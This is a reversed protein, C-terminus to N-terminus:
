KSIRKKAEKSDTDLLSDKHPPAPPANKEDHRRLFKRMKRVLFKERKKPPNPEFPNKALPSATFLHLWRGDTYYQKGLKNAIYQLAQKTYFSIHQGTEQSFYWWDTTVDDPVLETTFFFNDSYALINKIEEVPNVLHELM